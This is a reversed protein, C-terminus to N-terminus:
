RESPGELCNLATGIITDLEVPFSLEGNYDPALDLINLGAVRCVIDETIDAEIVDRVSRSLYVPCM